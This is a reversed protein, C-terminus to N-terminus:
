HPGPRGHRVRLGRLGPLGGHGSNQLLPLAPSSFRPTLVPFVIFPSFFHLSSKERGEEIFKRRGNKVERLKMADASPGKALGLPDFMPGGPYISAMDGTGKFASELGFFSGPEAQSGPKRFDQLRKIEVFNYLFMQVMFLSFGPIGTRETSVKGAEVWSPIDAGGARLISTGLIGAAATMATRGHILEAHAYWRLAAPNAGLNCPDFGYDGPLSPPPPPPFSRTHTINTSRNGTPSGM